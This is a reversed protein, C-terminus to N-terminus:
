SLYSFHWLSTRRRELGSTTSFFEVRWPGILSGLSMTTFWVGNAMAVIGDNFPLDHVRFIDPEVGSYM